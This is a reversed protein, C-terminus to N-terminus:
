VITFNGVSSLVKWDNDATICLLEVCDGADTAQIFGGTGVTSTFEGFRISDGTNQAIRYLGAGKGAARVVTGFPATAPLTITVLGANNAVYGTNAAAAQTTGTVEVWSIGTMATNTITIAGSGNTIGIGGGATLTAATLYPPTASGILLQGDATIQGTVQAGGSFDVNTAYVVDNDFGAM